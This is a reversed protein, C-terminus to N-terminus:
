NHTRFHIFLGLAASAPIVLLGTWAIHAVSIPVASQHLVGLWVAFGAWACHFSLCTPCTLLRRVFEPVNLDCIIYNQLEDHTLSALTERNINRIKEPLISLAYHRIHGLFTWNLWAGVWAGVIIVALAHLLVFELIYFEPIRM